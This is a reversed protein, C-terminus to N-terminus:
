SLRLICHCAFVSRTVGFKISEPISAIKNSTYLNTLIYLDDSTSFVYDESKYILVAIMM